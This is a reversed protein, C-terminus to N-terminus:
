RTQTPRRTTTAIATNTSVWTATTGKRSILNNPNSKSKPTVKVATNENAKYIFNDM